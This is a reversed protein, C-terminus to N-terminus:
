AAKSRHHRLTENTFNAQLIARAVPPSVSNGCLRIQDTKTVPTGDALADIRYSDPFGQARFLERPTLMRMGIDVIQYDAGAVTVLGLRAKATSTHMPERADQGIATGYYKLLFARVEATHHGGRGGGTTVTPFPQRVDIGDRCSGYFKTLFAAVLQQHSGKSTLTSVPATMPHGVMGENHQAMFAAVVLARAGRQETAITTMPVTLPEIRGGHAMNLVFPEAADLVFRKVGRAIRALTKDALPRERAFISPCPRHWDICEAATRWPRLDGSAVELSRPDGHTPAPWVIPRGDRRAILFLRKRITPAGYDCARLERWEVAYGAQRLRQVFLDFTRGKRDPCPLGQATLPGWDQFEEVNELAIMAPKVSAAWRIVVWALGRIHKEVPKGGKAKSFHKCDPSFWALAVPRGATVTRPDIAWVDEVLHRCHPHNAAHLGLAVADHNIAIDPGSWSAMEIGLSAGGGGAFNDVILGIRPSM